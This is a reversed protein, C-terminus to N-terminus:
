TNFDILEVNLVRFRREFMYFPAIIEDPDLELLKERISKKPICPKLDLHFHNFALIILTFLVMAVQWYRAILQHFM